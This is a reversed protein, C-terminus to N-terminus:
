SAAEERGWQIAELHRLFDCRDRVFAAGAEGLSARFNADQQLRKLSDALSQVDGFPVTLLHEGPVLDRFAATARENVIVALGSSMAELCSTPLSADNQVRYYVDHQAFARPMEEWPLRPAVSVSHHHGLATSLRETDATLITVHCDELQKVAMLLPEVALFDRGGDGLSHAGAGLLIRLRRGKRSPEKVFRTTVVSPPVFRLSAEPFLRNIEDYVQESWVVNLAACRISEAATLAHAVSDWPYTDARFLVEQLARQLIRETVRGELLSGEAFGSEVVTAPMAAFLDFLKAAVERGVILLRQPRLAQLVSRVWHTFLFKNGLDPIEILEGEFVARRRHHSVFICRRRQEALQSAVHEGWMSPGGISGDIIAAELRAERLVQPLPWVSLGPLRDVSEAPLRSLREYRGTLADSLLERALGAVRYQRRPQHYSFDYEMVLSDHRALPASLYVIQKPAQQEPVTM